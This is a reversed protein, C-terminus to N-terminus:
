RDARQDLALGGPMKEDTDDAESGEEEPNDEEADLQYFVLTTNGYKREVVIHLKELGPFISERSDVKTVIVGDPDLLGHRVVYEVAPPIMDNLYPPDIFIIDFVENKLALRRLAEMYDLQLSSCEKNFGLSAINEVLLDYTERFTDVLVVSRAGRSAAELGLSGTGAFLDLVRAEPIKHSIINFMAEKVRDLTPRTAKLEGTRTDRGENLPALLKRGKAKGAIIRM